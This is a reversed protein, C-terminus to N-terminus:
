GDEDMILIKLGKKRKVRSVAVYLQGHSFVPRPLYLGVQDLSQGQSKNITMAFCVVIPFQRRCMKVPVRKDSPTMKLRSILTTQGINTGTIIKAEIVHKGLKIVQLHTGNCLGNSQDINRLLMMPAGVKLILKHQPLRSLHLSNLVDTSFLAMDIDIAEDSECLSDAVTHTPALIARQQFYLPNSLSNLIDPYTFLILSDLPNVVDDILLDEPIQIEVEGDNTDGLLGNGLKLIWDAFEKIEEVDTEQCGVRLRMNVTFKLVQCHQWLYSSNLSANVINSRSGKPIVPLIQRFDDGFVVMKRGFVTEESNSYTSRLIDRMKRDLAEFCHKHIMPAEDWIILKTKKILAGLESNPEISCISNEFINIPIVFRSHATRGGTLLLSAIGSSAVNLVIEGKSRLGATLKGFSHKALVETAMCLSYVKDYLLETRILRNTLNSVYEQDPFPMEPFNKLSSGNSQLLDEIAALFLIQLAEDQLVLGPCNLIKRQTFIIDHSLLKWTKSWLEDPRM